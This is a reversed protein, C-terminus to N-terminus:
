EVFGSFETSKSTRSGNYTIGRPKSCMDFAAKCHVVACVVFTAGTEEDATKMALSALGNSFDVRPYPHMGTQCYNKYLYSAMSDLTARRTDTLSDIFLGLCHKSSYMCSTWQHVVLYVM